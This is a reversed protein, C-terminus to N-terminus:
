YGKPFSHIFHDQPCHSRRKQEFFQTQIYPSWPGIQKLCLWLLFVMDLVCGPCAFCCHWSEVNVFDEFRNIGQCAVQLHGLFFSHLEPFRSFFERGTM